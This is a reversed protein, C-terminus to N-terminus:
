AGRPLRVTFEVGPGTLGEIARASAEGGHHRAVARVIAM